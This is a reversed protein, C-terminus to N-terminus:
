GGARRLGAFFRRLHAHLADDLALSGGRAFHLLYFGFISAYFSEAAAACDLGRRLEGRRVGERFLEAAEGTKIRWDVLMAERLTADRTAAFQLGLVALIMRRDPASQLTRMVDGVLVDEVRTSKPLAERMSRRSVSAHATYASRLLDHMGRFHRYYTSKSVRARAAIREVRLREFGREILEAWFARYLKDKTQKARPDAM